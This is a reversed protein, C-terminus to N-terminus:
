AAALQAGRAAQPAFLHRARGVEEGGLPAPRQGHGAEALQEGPDALRGAEGEGDVRVLTM